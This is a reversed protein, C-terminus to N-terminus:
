LPKISDLIDKVGTESFSKEALEKTGDASYTVIFTRKDNSIVRIEVYSDKQLLTIQKTTDTTKDNENYYPEYQAIEMKLTFEDSGDEHIIEYSSLKQEYGTANEDDVDYFSKIYDFYGLVEEESLKTDSKEILINNYNNFIYAHAETSKDKSAIYNFEWKTKDYEISYTDKLSDTDKIAEYEEGTYLYADSDEDTSSDHDPVGDGDHDHEITESSSTADITSEQIGTNGNNSCAVLSFALITSLFITLIKKM